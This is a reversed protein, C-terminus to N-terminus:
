SKEDNKLKRYLNNRKEYLKEAGYYTECLNYYGKMRLLDSSEQLKTLRQLFIMAYPTKVTSEFDDSDLLENGEDEPHFGM